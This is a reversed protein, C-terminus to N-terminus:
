KLRAESAITVPRQKSNAEVGSASNIFSAGKERGINIIGIAHPCLQGNALTVGFPLLVRALDGSMRRQSSVERGVLPLPILM